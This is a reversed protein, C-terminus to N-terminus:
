KKTKKTKKRKRQANERSYTPPPTVPQMVVSDQENVKVTRRWGIDEDRLWETLGSPLEIRWM